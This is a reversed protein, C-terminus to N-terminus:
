SVDWTLQQVEPASDEIERASEESTGRQDANMRDLDADEEGYSANM